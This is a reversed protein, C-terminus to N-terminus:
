GPRFGSSRSLSEAASSIRAAITEVHSASALASLRTGGPMRRGLAGWAQRAVSRDAVNAFM